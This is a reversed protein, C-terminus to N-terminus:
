TGTGGLLADDIENNSIDTIDTVQGKIAILEEVAKATKGLIIKFEDGSKIEM